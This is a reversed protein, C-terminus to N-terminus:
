HTTRSHCAPAHCAANSLSFCAFIDCLFDSKTEKAKALRMLIRILAPWDSASSVTYLFIYRGSKQHTRVIRRSLRARPMNARLVKVKRQWFRCRCRRHCHCRCRCFELTLTLALWFVYLMPIYGVCVRVANRAPSVDTWINFCLRLLPVFFFGSICINLSCIM